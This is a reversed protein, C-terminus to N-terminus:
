VEAEDGMVFVTFPKKQKCLEVITAPLKYKNCQMKVMRGISKIVDARGEVVIIESVTAVDPSQFGIEDM